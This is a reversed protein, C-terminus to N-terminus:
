GIEDPAHNRYWNTRAGGTMRTVFADVTGANLPLLAVNGRKALRADELWSSGQDVSRYVVGGALTAPEHFGGLLHGSDTTLVRALGAQSLVVTWGISAASIYVSRLLAPGAADGAHSLLTESDTLRHWGQAAANGSSIVTHRPLWSLGDDQSEWVRLGGGLGPNSLGTGGWLTGSRPQCFRALHYAGSLTQTLSWSSGADTSRWIGGSNTSALCTGSRVEFLDHVVSVNPALSSVVALAAGAAEARQLVAQGGASSPPGGLLVAGGGLVRLATGYAGTPVFASGGESRLLPGPGVQEGLALLDGAAAAQLTHAQVNGSYVTALFQWARHRAAELLLEVEGSQLALAQELVRFPRAALGLHSDTWTVVAGVGLELGGALPTRVRLRPLPEHGFRVRDEALYYADQAAAHWVGRSSFRASRRGYAAQSASHVRTHQAGFAGTAPNYAAEVFYHNVLRTPDLALAAELVTDPPLAPPAAGFPQIADAGFPQIADAGFPQIADAFHLRGNRFSIVRSSLLALSDLVQYIREGTLHAQVRVDRVADADRWAAWEAYDIDPNSTSQVASLGGHSTVLNWALESPYWASGTFELGGSEAATGLAVDSLSRTRGQLQLRLELGGREFTAHSPAGLFLSLWEPGSQPHTFGLALEASSTLAQACDVFLQFRREVNSLHVTTTGLDITDARFRLTPWRLVADSYDSGGLVFRRLPASRPARSEGIFWSSVALSM